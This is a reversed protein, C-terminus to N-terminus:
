PLVEVPDAALDQALEVLALTFPSARDALVREISPESEALAEDEPLVHIAAFPFQRALPAVARRLQDVGRVRNVVLDVRAIGMQAALQAADLAVTMANWTPDTVVLARGFGKALARGFHEVGAQTDMLIVDGQRLAISQVAAALLSNEPCLCGMAPVVLSGMVLLRVGDPGIIGFRDVVDDVSPNLRFMLGWGDGPRAGTKEEILDANRSLPVIARAEDLPMGLTAALNMQADADVALVTRDARALIRALASTLTTKGVGGKGTIVIRARDGSPSVGSSAAGADASTADDTNVAM